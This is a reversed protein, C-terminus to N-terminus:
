EPYDIVFERADDRGGGPAPTSVGIRYSGPLATERPGLTAHLETPSIWDTRVPVGNLIVVSAPVFNYGTVTIVAASHQHAM